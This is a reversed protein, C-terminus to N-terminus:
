VMTFVSQHQFPKCPLQPSLRDTQSIDEHGSTSVMPGRPLFAPELACPLARWLCRCGPPFM